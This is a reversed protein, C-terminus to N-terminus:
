LTRSRGHDHSVAIMVTVGIEVLTLLTARNSIYQYIIFRSCLLSLVGFVLLIWFEFAFPLRSHVLVGPRVSPNIM